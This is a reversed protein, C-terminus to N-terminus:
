AANAHSNVAVVQMRERYDEIAQNARAAADRNSKGSSLTAMYAMEWIRQENEQQTSM